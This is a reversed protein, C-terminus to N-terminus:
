DWLIPKIFAFFDHRTYKKPAPKKKEDPKVSKKDKKIGLSATKKM